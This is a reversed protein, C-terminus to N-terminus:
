TCWFIAIKPVEFNGGSEWRDEPGDAKVVPFYTERVCREMGAKGGKEGKTQVLVDYTSVFYRVSATGPAFVVGGPGEIVPDILCTGSEGRYALSVPFPSLPLTNKCGTNDTQHHQLWSPM